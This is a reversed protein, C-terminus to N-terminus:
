REGLNLIPQQWLQARDDSAFYLRVMGEDYLVAGCSRTAPWTRLTTGDVLQLPGHELAALCLCCLGPAYADEAPYGPVWWARCTAPRGCGEHRCRVAEPAVAPYKAACTRCRNPEDSIRLHRRCDRCRRIM